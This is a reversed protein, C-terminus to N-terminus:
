VPETLLWVRMIRIMDTLSVLGDLFGQGDLVWVRHVSYTVAKDVAEGLRSEATCIVPDRVSSRLCAAKHLPTEALKELFEMVGMKLYSQLHSIPCGRLDTASFTGM